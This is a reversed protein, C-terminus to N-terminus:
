SILSRVCHRSPSAVVVDSIQVNLPFLIEARLACRARAIKWESAYKRSTMFTMSFSWSTQRVKKLLYLLEAVNACLQFRSHVSETCLHWVNLNRVIKVHKIINVSIAHCHGKITKPMKGRWKDESTKGPDTTWQWQSYVGAPFIWVGHIKLPWYCM